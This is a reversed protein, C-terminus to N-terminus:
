SRIFNVIIEIKGFLLTMTERKYVYESVKPLNIFAHRPRQKLKSRFILIHHHINNQINALDVREDRNM